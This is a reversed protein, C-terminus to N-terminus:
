PCGGVVAVVNDVDGYDRFMQPRGTVGITIARATSQGGLNEHGREDCLLVNTVQPGLAAVAQSFGTSAFSVYGGNALVNMNGLVAEHAVLVQDVPLDVVGNGNQDTFVVWGLTMDAGCVPAAALPDNSPCMVTNTRQKVAESRARHIATMVDNNLAAMRNSQVINVFSPVGVGLVIALIAVAFMLELLTVGTQYYKKM